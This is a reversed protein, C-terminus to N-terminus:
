RGCAAANCVGALSQRVSSSWLRMACSAALGGCAASWQGAMRADPVVLPGSGARAAWIPGATRQRWRCVSSCSCKRWLGRCRSGGGGGRRGGRRWSRAGGHAVVLPGRGRALLHGEPDAKLGEMKSPRPAAVAAPMSLLPRPPELDHGPSARHPAEPARRALPRPPLPPPSPLSPRRRTAAPLAQRRRPPPPVRSSSSAAALPEMLCLIHSCSNYTIGEHKSM